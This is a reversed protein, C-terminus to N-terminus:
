KKNYRDRKRQLKRIDDVWIKYALGAVFGALPPAVFYLWLHPIWETTGHNMYCTINMAVTVAPNFSAGSIVGV